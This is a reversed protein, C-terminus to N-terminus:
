RLQWVQIRNSGADVLYARSAEDVAVGWPIALRGLRRGPGGYVGVSRGSPDFVQVRNNGYECVVVDGGKTLALDYPYRLEGPGSGL